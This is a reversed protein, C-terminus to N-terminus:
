KDFYKSISERLEPTDEYCNIPTMVGNCLRPEKVPQYGLRVIHKGLRTRNGQDVKYGMETAIEAVGRMSKAPLTPQKEIIANVSNDILIQSLRPHDFLTDTIHRINDSVHRIADSIVVAQQYPLLVPDVIPTSEVKVQYGAQGLMYVNAGCNGMARALEPNFELALDFVVSSPYLPLRQIGGATLVEATKVTDKPLGELRRRLTGNTPNMGMMRAIGSLHAYALGTSEDIWLELGNQEYKVLNM